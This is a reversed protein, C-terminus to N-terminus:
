RYGYKYREKDNTFKYKWPKCLACSCMRSSIDINHEQKLRIARAKKKATNNRRIARKM